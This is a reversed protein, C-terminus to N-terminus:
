GNLIKRDGVATWSVGPVNQLVRLKRPVQIGENVHALTKKGPVRDSRGHRALTDDLREKLEALAGVVQQSEPPLGLMNRFDGMVQQPDEPARGALGGAAQQAEATLDLALDADDETLGLVRTLLWKSKMKVGMFSLSQLVSAHAQQITYLMEEDETGIRPFVIKYIVSGPPLGALAFAVDYLKYLGSALFYQVRRITRAFQIDLHTIVKRARTEGEFGLYAKPVKFAAFILNTLHTVDDIQGLTGSNHVFVGASLAFNHYGPVCLDYVDDEGASMVSLVKHNGLAKLKAEPSHISRALNAVHIARHEDKTLVELNSPDNNRQDFDAHHVELGPLIRHGDNHAERAVLRHTYLWRGTQNSWVREYGYRDPERYLPMLSDGPKLEDARRYTGDRLM